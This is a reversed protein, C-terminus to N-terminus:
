ITFPIELIIAIRIVIKDKRGKRERKKTQKTKFKKELRQELSSRMSGSDNTINLTTDRELWGVSILYELSVPFLKYTKAPCSFLQKYFGALGVKFVADSFPEDVTSEPWIQIGDYVTETNYTQGYEFFRIM